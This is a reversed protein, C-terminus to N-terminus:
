GESVEVEVRVEPNLGLATMMSAAGDFSALCSRMNVSAELLADANGSKIATKAAEECAQAQATITGVANAYAQYVASVLVTDAEDAEIFFEGADIIVEDEATAM